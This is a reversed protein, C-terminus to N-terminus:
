NAEAVSADSTLKAQVSEWDIDLTRGGGNNQGCGQHTEACIGRFAGSIITEMRRIQMSAKMDRQTESMWNGIHNTASPM